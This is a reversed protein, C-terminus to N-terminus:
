DMILIAFDMLPTPLVIYCEGDISTLIVNGNLDHEHKKM